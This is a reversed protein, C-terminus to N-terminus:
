GGRCARRDGLQRREACGPPPGCDVHRRENRRRCAGRNQEFYRGPIGPRAALWDRISCVTDDEERLRAVEDADRIAKGYRDLAYEAIASARGAEKKLYSITTLAELLIRLAKDHPDAQDTM